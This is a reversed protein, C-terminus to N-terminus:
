ARLRLAGARLRHWITEAVAEPGAGPLDVVHRDEVLADAFERHMHAAAGADTFGHGRRTGVRHLCEELSPLIMAYHLRTVGSAEAFLPLSWPGLVGEYVVSWGGAWLAGTCAAASRLVTENQDSAEPLWPATAGRSLFAFFADGPVLAARDFRQVLLGAVTTKGAGPPGTVVLVDEVPAPV